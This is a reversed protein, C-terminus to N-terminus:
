TGTEKDLAALAADARDFWTGRVMDVQSRIEKLLERVEQLERELQEICAQQRDWMIRWAMCAAAMDGLPILDNTPTGADKTSTTM